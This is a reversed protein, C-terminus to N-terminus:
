TVKFCLRKFPHRAQANQCQLSLLPCSALWCCRELASRLELSNCIGSFQHASRFLSHLLPFRLSSCWFSTCMMIPCSCCPSLLLGMSLLDGDRSIVLQGSLTAFTIFLCTNGPCHITIEIYECLFCHTKIINLVGTTDFIAKATALTAHGCLPVECTPTFWRLLFNNSSKFDGNLPRVFATESLNMEAAILQM